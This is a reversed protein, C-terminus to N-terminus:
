AYINYRVHGTSPDVQWTVSSQIIEGDMGANQTGGSPGGSSQNDTGQGNNDHAFAGNDQALEFSISDSRADLGAQQLARELAHSDRQLMLYTEPKEVTLHAKVSKDKSIQLRVSVNGLEPPDMRINMTQNDSNGAFKVIQAAVMGTAPNPQGASASTAIINASQATSGYSLSPSAQLGYPVTIAADADGDFLHVPFNMDGQSANNSNILNVIHDKAAATPAKVSPDKAADVQPKPLGADDSVPLGLMKKKPQASMDAATAAVPEEGGVDLANLQAALDDTPSTAADTASDILDSAESKKSLSNGLFAIVTQEPAPPVIGGVGSILDEVTIERGLKKELQQIKDTVEAIESPKLGLSILVPMPLDEVATDKTIVGNNLTTLSAQLTDSKAQLKALVKSLIGDKDTSEPLVNKLHNIIQNTFDLQSQIKEPSDTDVALLINGNEDVNQSALAVQLAVLPNAPQQVPAASSSTAANVTTTNGNTTKVISALGTQEAVALRSIILDFFNGATAHSLVGSTTGQLAQTQGAAVQTTAIPNINSM